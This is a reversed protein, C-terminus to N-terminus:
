EVFAIPDFAHLARVLAFARGFHPDMEILLDCFTGRVQSRAM